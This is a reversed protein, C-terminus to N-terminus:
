FVRDEVADPRSTGLFAFLGRQSTACGVPGAVAVVFTSRVRVVPKLHVVTHPRVTGLFALLSGTAAPYGVLGAVAVVFAGRGEM